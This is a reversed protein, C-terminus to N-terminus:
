LYNWRRERTLNLIYIYIITHAIMLDKESRSFSRRDKVAQWAWLSSVALSDGMGSVCYPVAGLSGDRRSPRFIGVQLGNFVAAGDVFFDFAGAAAPPM